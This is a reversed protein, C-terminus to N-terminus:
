SAKTTSVLLAAKPVRLLRGVRVSAMAGSTCAEYICNKSVGLWAAAEEVRLFEPLADPRTTRTVTTATPAPSPRPAKPRKTALRIAREAM